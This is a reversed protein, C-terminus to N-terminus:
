APKVGFVLRLLAMIIVWFPIPCIAVQYNPTGKRPLVAAWTWNRSAFRDFVAM